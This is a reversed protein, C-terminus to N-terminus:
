QVYWVVSPCTNRHTSTYILLDIGYPPISCACRRRANVAAPTRPRLEEEKDGDAGRQEENKLRREDEVWLHVLARRGRGAGGGRGCVADGFASRLFGVTM